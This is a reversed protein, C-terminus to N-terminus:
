PIEIVGDPYLSPDSPQVAGVRIDRKAQAREASSRPGARPRMAAAGEPTQAALRAFNGGAFIAGTLFQVRGKDSIAEIEAMAVAHRAQVAVAELEARTTAIALQGSLDSDLGRDFPVCPHLAIGYNKGVRARAANIEGRIEDRVARRDDATPVTQRRPRESSLEGTSPRQGARDPTPIAQPDAVNGAASSAGQGPTDAGQQTAHPGPQGSGPQRGDVPKHPLVPQRVPVAPDRAPSLKQDEPDPIQSRPDPIESSAGPTRAPHGGISPQDNTQNSVFRGGQGRGQRGAREAASRGGAPSGARAARLRSVTKHTGRLYITGDPRTEGMALADCGDGLIGELGRPGLFRRVVAAPVCYGDADDPADELGRDSCWSWLSFYRGLAEFVNYGCFDATFSVREEKRLDTEMAVFPAGAM